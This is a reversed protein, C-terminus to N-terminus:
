TQEKPPRRAVVEDGLSEGTEVFGMSLYLARASENAPVYALGLEKGPHERDVLDIVRQIAAKGYGRGQYREDVMVRAIWWAGQDEWWGYSIFGVMQGEDNYIARPYLDPEYIAMALSNINTAVFNRQSEAVKLRACERWNDRTIERLEVHPQTATSM